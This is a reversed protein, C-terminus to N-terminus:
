LVVIRDEQASRYIAEMVRANARGDEAPPEIDGGRLIRDSFYEAELRWQHEAEVNIRETAPNGIEDKVIFFSTGTIRGYRYTEVQSFGRPVYIRGSEGFLEYSQSYINGSLRFSCDFHAVGGEPFYLTAVMREDVGTEVGFEARAHVSNPEPGFMFRATNM